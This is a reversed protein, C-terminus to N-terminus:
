AAPARCFSLLRLISAFRTKRIRRNFIKTRSTSLMPANNVLIDIGGIEEALESVAKETGALDNLDAGFYRLGNGLTSLTEETRWRRGTQRSLRSRGRLVAQGASQRDDRASWHDPRDRGTLVGM